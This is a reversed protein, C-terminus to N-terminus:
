FYIFRLYEGAVLRAKEAKKMHETAVTLKGSFDDVRRIIYMNNVADEKPDSDTKLRKANGHKRSNV